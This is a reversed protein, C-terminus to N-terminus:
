VFTPNAEPMINEIFDGSVVVFNQKINFVPM